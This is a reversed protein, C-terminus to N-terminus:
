RYFCLRGIVAFDPGEEKVDYIDDEEIEQLFVYKMSRWACLFDKKFKIRLLFHMGAQKGTM